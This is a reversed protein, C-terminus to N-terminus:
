DHRFTIVWCERDDHLDQLKYLFGLPMDKFKRCNRIAPYMNFLGDVDKKSNKVDETMLYEPIEAGIACRFGDKNEYKCRIINDEVARNTSNYRNCCRDLM